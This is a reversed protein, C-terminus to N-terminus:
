DFYNKLRSIKEHNRLKEHVKAEIQRYSAWGEAASAELLIEESQLTAPDLKSAVATLEERAKDLNRSVGSKHGDRYLAVLKRAATPDGADAAERLLSMAAKANRRTGFGGLYCEALAVAAQPNNKSKAEELM